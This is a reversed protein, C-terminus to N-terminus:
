ATANCQIYVYVLQIFYFLTMLGCLYCPAPSCSCQALGSCRCPTLMIGRRILFPFECTELGAIDRPPPIQYPGVEDQETQLLLQDNKDEPRVRAAVAKLIEPSIPAEYDANHYQSILKQIQSPSLIWCVDFLIEIDGLTAQTTTLKLHLGFAGCVKKLQLLKTAQMLHELQLLGEPM